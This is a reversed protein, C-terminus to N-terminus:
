EEPPTPWVINKPDPYTQPLDRLIQRYEAWSQKNVRADDVQTWDSEQLLRNRKQRPLIWDYNLLNENWVSEIQELTPKPFDSNWFEIQPGKGDAHDIVFYESKKIAPYMKKIVYNLDILM